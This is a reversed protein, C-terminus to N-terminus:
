FTDDYVEPHNSNDVLNSGKAEKAKCSNIYKQTANCIPMVCVTYSFKEEIIDSIYIGRLNSEFDQMQTQFIIATTQSLCEKVTSLEPRDTVDRKKVVRYWFGPMLLQSSRPISKISDVTTPQVIAIPESCQCFVLYMIKHLDKEPCGRCGFCKWGYNKSVNDLKELCPILIFAASLPATVIFVESYRGIIAVIFGALMYVALIVLGSLGFEALAILLMDRKASPTADIFAQKKRRVYEILRKM